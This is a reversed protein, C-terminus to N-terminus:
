AVPVPVKTMPSWFAAKFVCTVKQPACHSLSFEILPPEAGELKLPNSLSTLAGSGVHLAVQVVLGPLLGGGGDLMGAYIPTITELEMVLEPESIEPLM